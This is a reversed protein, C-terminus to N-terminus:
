PKEAGAQRKGSILAALEETVRDQEVAIEAVLKQANVFAEAESKPFEESFALGQETASWKGWHTKLSAFMARALDCFEVNSVNLERQKDRAASAAEFGTLVEHMIRESAGSAALRNGLEKRAGDFAAAYKEVHSRATELLAIRANLEEQTKINTPDIGGARNFADFGKNQAVALENLERAFKSMAIAVEREKLSADKASAEIAKATREGSAALKETDGSRVAEAQQKRAEAFQRTSESRRAPEQVVRLVGVVAMVMAAVCATAGAAKTSRVGVHYAIWGLVLPVILAAAAAGAMAPAVYTMSSGSAKLSAFQAFASVAIGAALALFVVPSNGFIPPKTQPQSM